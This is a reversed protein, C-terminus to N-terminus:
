MPHAGSSFNLECSRLNFRTQINNILAGLGDIVRSKWLGRPQHNGCVSLLCGLDERLCSGLGFASGIQAGLGKSFGIQLKRRSGTKETEYASAQAVRRRWGDSTRDADQSDVM